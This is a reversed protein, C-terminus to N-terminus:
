YASDDWRPRWFYKTGGPEQFVVDVMEASGSRRYRLRAISIKPLKRPM